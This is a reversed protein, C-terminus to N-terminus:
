STDTCRSIYIINYIYVYICHKHIHSSYMIGLYTVRSLFSLLNGKWFKSAIWKHHWVSSSDRGRVIKWPQVFGSEVWANEGIVPQRIHFTNTQSPLPLKPSSKGMSGATNRCNGCKKLWKLGRCFAIVLAIGSHSPGFWEPCRIKWTKKPALFHGTITPAWTNHIAPKTATDPSGVPVWRPRPRLVNQSPSPDAGLVGNFSYFDWTQIGCHFWGSVSSIMHFWGCSWVCVLIWPIIRSSKNHFGMNKSLGNNMLIMQRLFQSSFCGPFWRYEVISTWHHLTGTSISWHTSIVQFSMEFPLWSFVIIIITIIMIIM